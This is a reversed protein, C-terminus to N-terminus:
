EETGAKSRTAMRSARKGGRDGKRRTEGTGVKEVNYLHRNKRAM